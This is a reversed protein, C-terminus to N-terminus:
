MLTLVLPYKESYINGYMDTFIPHMDDTKALTHEWEQWDITVKSIAKPVDVMVVRGLSGTNLIQYGWFPSSFESLNLLLKVGGLASM